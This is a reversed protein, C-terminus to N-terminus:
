LFKVIKGLFCRYQLRKKIFSYDECTNEKSVQSTKLFVFM